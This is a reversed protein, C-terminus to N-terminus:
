LIIDRVTWKIEWGSLGGRPPLNRMVAIVSRQCEIGDEISLFYLGRRHVFEAVTLSERAADSMKAVSATTLVSQAGGTSVLEPQPWCLWFECAVTLDIQTVCFAQRSGFGLPTPNVIDPFVTLLECDVAPPAHGVWRQAPLTVNCNAAETALDDLLGDCITELPGPM